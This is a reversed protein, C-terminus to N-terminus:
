TAAGRDGNWFSSEVVYNGNSLTDYTLVVSGVPEVHDDVQIYRYAIYGGVADNPNSGVLSNSDSVTGSVGTTGSGWTVAGASGHWVLSLVVYNGDSLAVASEAGTHDGYYDSFHYGGVVDGPTSGVLDSILAGTLGDFLYVAGANTGGFDDFPNNVVVNGSRLVTLGAGFQGGVTPHPDILDFQPFVGVSTTSIILNKPDLLLTGNQGRPAGADAAGGYDLNGHGSLEIFGGAGGAAGGQASVTGDFATSQESWVLVRGGAGSAVADARLTTTPTVMVAQADHPVNGVHGAAAPVNSVHGVSISGGGNQGSADVTGGDLVVEQGLLDVTGGSSGTAQQRGSSFLHGNSGSDLVVQGGAGGAGNATTLATTTDIYSDTFAIQVTGGPGATGNATVPGANLVDGAQVDIQGGSPGDAHLQGSNVFRAAAVEIQGRAAASGAVVAGQAEVTVWDSAALGVASGHLAGRVSIDSAQVVLPGGVAVDQTIVTAGPANVSLGGSLQQNDLVLTDQGSGGLLVIGNVNAASAGALRADFSALGPDSSHDQGNVSIEVFGAGSVAEHISTAAGQSRIALTGSTADFAV